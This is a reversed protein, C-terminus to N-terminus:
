VLHSWAMSCTCLQPLCKHPCLCLKQKKNWLGSPTNQLFHGVGGGWLNLATKWAGELCGQLSRRVMGALDAAWGGQQTWPYWSVGLEMNEWHRLSVWSSWNAKVDFKRQQYWEEQKNVFISLLVFVQPAWTVGWQLFQYCFRVGMRSCGGTLTNEWILQACTNGSTGRFRGGEPSIKQANLGQAPLPSARPM